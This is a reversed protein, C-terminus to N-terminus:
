NIPIMAKRIDSMYLLPKDGIKHGKLNGNRIWNDYTSGSIGLMKMADSKTVIKDQEEIIEDFRKELRLLQVWVTDRIMQKLKDVKVIVTDNDLITIGEM